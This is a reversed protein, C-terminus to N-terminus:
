INTPMVRCLDGTKERVEVRLVNFHGQHYETGGRVHALAGDDGGDAPEERVAPIRDCGELGLVHAEVGPNGTVAGLNSNSLRHLCECGPGLRPGFHVRDKQLRLPVPGRLNDQHPLRVAIQRDGVIVELGVVEELAGEFRVSPELVVVVDDHNLACTPCRLHVEVSPVDGIDPEGLPEAQRDHQHGVDFSATDEGLDAPSDGEEGACHPVKDAPHDDVLKPTVGGEELVAHRQYLFQRAHRNEAHERVVGQFQRALVRERDPVLLDPVM